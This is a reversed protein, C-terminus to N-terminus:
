PKKEGSCSHGVDDIKILTVRVALTLLYYKIIKKSLLFDILIIFFIFSLMEVIKRTLGFVNKATQDENLGLVALTITVIVVLM